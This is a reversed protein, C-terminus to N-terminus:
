SYAVLQLFNHVVPSSSQGSKVGVGGTKNGDQRQGLLSGLLFSTDALFHKIGLCETNSKLQAHGEVCLLVDIALAM